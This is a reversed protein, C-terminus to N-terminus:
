SNCDVLLTLDKRMPSRLNRARVECHMPLTQGALASNLALRPPEAFASEWVGHRLDGIHGTIVYEEGAKEVSPYDVLSSTRIFPAMTGPPSPEDPIRDAILLGDAAPLRVLISADEIYHDAGNHLYLQLRYAMEEFVYYFDHEAYTRSVTALNGELTKTDRQEYPTAGFMVPGLDLSQLVKWGYPSPSAAIREREALIALIRKEARASPLELEGPTLVTLENAERDSRLSLTLSGLLRTRSDRREYIRDLDRRLLRGQHTGRRIFSDGRRLTGRDKKLVYPQQDCSHLRLIGFLKDELELPIYEIHIDPEVNDALLQEYTATDVIADRPIGRLERQGDPFLKVGVVIYRDGEVDANAMAVADRILDEHKARTYQDRKFDVATCEREDCILTQPDRM